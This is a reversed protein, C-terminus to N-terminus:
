VPRPKKRAGPGSRGTPRASAKDPAVPTADSPNDVAEAEAAAAFMAALLTRRLKEEAPAEAPVTDAMTGPPVPDPTGDAPAGTSPCPDRGERFGYLIFHLFPNLPSTRVDANAALYRRTDFFANPNRGEGAGHDLYHQVPDLRARAVDEHQRLYWDLDFLLPRMDREPQVVPPPRRGIRPAGNRSRLAAAPGDTPSVQPKVAAKDSIDNVPM